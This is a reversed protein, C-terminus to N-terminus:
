PFKFQIFKFEGLLNILEFDFKVKEFGIKFELVKFKQKWLDYKFGIMSSDYYMNRETFVFSWRKLFCCVM